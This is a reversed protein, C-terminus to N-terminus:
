SCVKAGVSADPRSDTSAQAASLTAAALAPIAGPGHGALLGAVRSLEAQMRQRVSEDNLLTHLTSAVKVPIFDDQILEPVARRGAVLNVMAVHPVTVVRRAIAYTLRSVRYVVLFPNGILAAEVTATGSAVVSARAHHLTARADDVLTVRPGRPLAHQAPEARGSPAQPSRELQAVSMSFTAGPETRPKARPKAGLEAGLESLQEGIVAAQAETLTPALPLIWEYGDYGGLLLDAAAVMGPLNLAIERPRSGPLLGIWPKGPDLGHQAAFAERTISPLPLETLPHGVFKAVVGRERYFAEEFPFIVLMQDINRRIQALRHKKWAWVQPSVFFIVPIGLRRCERALGLNVDPFDILVAVRPKERGLSRRLRRYERYIRSMHRVIETIGMVAVDEARVIRRFGLAEMRRGGLGFFEAEPVASRIAAMLQVAYQEGSAEGASLFIRVSTSPTPM